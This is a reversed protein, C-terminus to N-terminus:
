RGSLLNLFIARHIPSATSFRDLLFGFIEISRPDILIQWSFFLFPEISISDISSKDFLQRAQLFYTKWLLSFYMSIFAVLLSSLCLDLWCILSEFCRKVYLCIMWLDLVCVCVVLRVLKINWFWTLITQHAYILMHIRQSPWIVNYRCM